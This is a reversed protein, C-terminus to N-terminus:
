VDAVASKVEEGLRIEIDTALNFKDNSKGFLHRLGAVDIYAAQAVDHAHLGRGVATPADGRLDFAVFEHRRSRGGCLNRGKKDMRSCPRRGLKIKHCESAAATWAYLPTPGGNGTEM